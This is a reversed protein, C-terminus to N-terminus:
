DAKSDRTKYGGKPPKAPKLDKAEHGAGDPVIDVGRSHPVEGKMAVKVGSKHTLNLGKEDASCESPDVVSGNELVYWTARM